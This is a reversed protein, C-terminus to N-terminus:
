VSIRRFRPADREDTEFFEDVGRVWTSGKDVSRYVVAVEHGMEFRAITIIRYIAHTKQHEWLEGAMPLDKPNNM